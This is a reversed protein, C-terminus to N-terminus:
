DIEKTGFALSNSNANRRSGDDLLTSNSGSSGPHNSPAPGLSFHSDNLGPFKSTPITM